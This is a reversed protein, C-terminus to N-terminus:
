MSLKAKEEVKPVIVTVNTPVPMTTHYRALIPKPAVALKMLESEIRSFHQRKAERYNADYQFPKQQMEAAEDDAIIQRCKALMDLCHDHFQAARNKDSAAYHAALKYYTVALYTPAVILSRQPDSAIVEKFLETARNLEDYSRTYPDFEDEDCLYLAWNNRVINSDPYLVYAKRFLQDIKEIGATTRDSGKRLSVAQAVYLSAMATEQTVLQDIAQQIFTKETDADYLNALNIKIVSKELATENYQELAQIFAEKAEAKKGANKLVLGRMNYIAALLMSISQSIEQIHNKSQLESVATQESLFATQQSLNVTNELQTQQYGKIFDFLFQAGTYIAKVTQQEENPIDNDTILSKGHTLTQEALQFYEESFGERRELNSLPRFLTLKSLNNVFISIKPHM